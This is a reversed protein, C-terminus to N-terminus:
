FRGAVNTPSPATPSTTWGTPSRRIPAELVIATGRGLRSHIELRGGAAGARERMGALGFHGEAVGNARDAEFGAGDDEVVLRLKRTEFTLTLQVANAGSHRVANAVAEQVIRVVAHRVDAEPDRPEGTVAILLSIDTHAVAHQAARRVASVVSEPLVRTRMGMIACRTEAATREALELVSALAKGAPECAQRVDPLVARLRLAIAMADQLLGDHLERAIRAREALVAGRRVASGNPLGVNMPTRGDPALTSVAQTHVAVIEMRMPPSECVSLRVGDSALCKAHPDSGFDLVDFEAAQLLLDLSRGFNDDDIVALTAV